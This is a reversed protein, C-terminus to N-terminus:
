KPARVALSSKHLENIRIYLALIVREFHFIPRYNNHFHKTFVAVERLIEPTIFLDNSNKMLGKSKVECQTIVSHLIKDVDINKIFQDYIADRIECIESGNTWLVKMLQNICRQEIKYTSMTMLKNGAKLEKINVDNYVNEIQLSSVKQKVRQKKPFGPISNVCDCKTVIKHVKRALPVPVCLKHSVQKVINPICCLSNSLILFTINVPYIERQMYYYISELIDKGAKHFNKLVFFTQNRGHMQMVDIVHNFIDDWRQKTNTNLLEMNLEFHIDSARLTIDQEDSTRVLVKREYSLNNESFLSILYLGLTYKGTNEPGYIIFHSLNSITKAKNKYEEIKADISPHLPERTHERLYSDFSHEFYKLM